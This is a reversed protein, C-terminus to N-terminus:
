LENELKNKNQKNNSCPNPGLSDEQIGFIGLCKADINAKEDRKAVELM